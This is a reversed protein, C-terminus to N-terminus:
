SQEGGFTHRVPRETRWVWLMLGVAVAAFAALLWSGRAAARACTIACSAAWLLAFTSSTIWKRWRAIGATAFLSFSAAGTITFWPDTM